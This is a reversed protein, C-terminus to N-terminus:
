ECCGDGAQVPPCKKDGYSCFVCCDGEKPRMLTGCSTCAYFWQCAETPMRETKAFKCNPCTITANLEM